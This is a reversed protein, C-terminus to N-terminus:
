PAAAILAGTITGFYTVNLTTGLATLAAVIALALLGALLAYEIAVNGDWRELCLKTVRLM